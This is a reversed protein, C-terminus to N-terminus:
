RDALYYCHTKAIALFRLSKLERPDEAGWLDRKGSLSSISVDGDKRLMQGLFVVRRM